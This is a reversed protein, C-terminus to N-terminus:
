KLAGLTDTQKRRTPPGHRGALWASSNADQRMPLAPAGAPASRQPPAHTTPGDPPCNATGKQGPWCTTALGLGLRELAVGSSRCPITLSGTLGPCV